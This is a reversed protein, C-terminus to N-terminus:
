RLRRPPDSPGARPIRRRQTRYRSWERPSSRGVFESPGTLLARADRLEVTAAGGPMTVRVPTASAGLLGWRDAAVVAAVAGSGCAQTVGAGREWVRLVLHHPDAVAVFHVNIGDPYARELAPGEVELDVVEPEDVLLVLHPNGIDLTRRRYRGWALAEPSVPPAKARQAWISPSCPGVSHIGKPWPSRVCGATPRSACSRVRRMQVRPSHTRHSCPRLWAASATARSRRGRSGDANLLVMAAGDAPDAPALGYVLGDAGIGRRRECLSQAVDAGVELGPNLAGLAVLFDNGQRPVQRSADPVPAGQLDRRAPLASPPAPSSAPEVTGTGGTGGAASKRWLLDLETALQAATRDADPPDFWEIRPDRGFWRLQRVAFRRTALKAESVAGELDTEGRLHALLERYGLAQRATRSMPPRIKSLAAVEDLFGAAMQADFRDGIAEAIVDRDPRLGCMVFPTAPYSGFAEGHESFPVGTGIGVELARIIRRRNGAPIRELAVPDLEHLRAALEATDPNSELEAAIDPFHPPPTFDDVLARVYLGTGGVLLAAAGRAEIGAM